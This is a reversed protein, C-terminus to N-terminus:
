KVEFMVYNSTSALPVEQLWAPSEHLALHAAMSDDPLMKVAGDPTLVYHPGKAHLYMDPIRRCLLVLNIGDKRIIKEAEAQETASFFDLADLNGRVNTHYPASMIMDNTRFLLEPGQDIINLIRLPAREAYPPKNLIKVLDHMACSDDFGQAPFLMVGGSFSREDSLAPLLVSSLPGILMLLGIEAWFRPRGVFGRGIWQWGYECFATLPVLAFLLAYILVRSQYFLALTLSVSLLVANLLWGWKKQDGKKGELVLFVSTALAILLPVYTVIIKYLSFRDILPEAEELNDFFLQALRKDMAGYPGSFLAPYFALYFGASLLAILGCAIMRVRMNAIPALIVTGLLAFAIGATLEVYVISYSLLDTTAIESLPRELFLFCISGVFLSLAYALISARSPKGIVVAWFGLIASILSLWPLVELAIATALALALGCLIAWRIESPRAFVGYAFGTALIILIGELGHHDVQGPAFKSMLASAFLAIVPTLGTWNPNILRAASKDLAFFLGGLYLVPLLFSSLLAAGNWSYHFSRFLTILAAIPLEALRTYHIAVGEPPAMRHQINDFWNQGRLWDLTQTLYTYDDPDPLDGGWVPNHPVAWYSLVFYVWAIFPLGKFPPMFVRGVDSFFTLLRNKM